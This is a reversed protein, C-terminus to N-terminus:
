IVGKFSPNEPLIMVVPAHSVWAVILCYPLDLIIVEPGQLSGLDIVIDLSACGALLVFVERM